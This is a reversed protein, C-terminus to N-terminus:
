PELDWFSESPSTSGLPWIQVFHPFGLQSVSQDVIGTVVPRLLM